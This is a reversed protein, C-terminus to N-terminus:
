PNDERGSANETNGPQPNLRAFEAEIEDSNRVFYASLLWTLPFFCVGLLFWTLSFGFVSRNAIQPFYLNFLPLGMILVIFVAGVQLSLAAQKRMMAHAVQAHELSEMDQPDHNMTEISGKRENEETLNM